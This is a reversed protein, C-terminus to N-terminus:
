YSVQTKDKFFGTREFMGNIKRFLKRKSNLEDDVDKFVKEDEKDILQMFEEDALPYVLDIIFDISNCYAKRTDKHYEMVFVMGGSTKIPKKQWYGSVFEESSIDGVKRIQRLIIEQITKPEQPTDQNLDFSEVDEHYTNTKM